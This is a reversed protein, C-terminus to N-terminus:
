LDKLLEHMCFASLAAGLQSRHQALELVKAHRRTLRNKPHAIRGGRVVDHQIAGHLENSFGRRPPAARLTRPPDEPADADTVPKALQREVRAPRAPLRRPRRRRRLEDDDRLGGVLAMECGHLLKLDVRLDLLESVHGRQRGQRRM